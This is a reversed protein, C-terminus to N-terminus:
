RLACGSRACAKSLLGPRHMLPADAFKSGKVGYGGLDTSHARGPQQARAQRKRAMFGAIENAETRAAKSRSSWCSRAAFALWSWLWLRPEEVTHGIAAKAELWSCLWLWSEELLPWALAWLWFRKEEVAAM